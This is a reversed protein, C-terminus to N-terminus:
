IKNALRTHKIVIQPDNQDNLQLCLYTFERVVKRKEGITCNQEHRRHTTMALLKTKDGYIQLGIKKASEDINQFTDKVDRLMTEAPFPKEVLHFVM